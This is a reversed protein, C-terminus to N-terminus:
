EAWGLWPGLDAALERAMQYHQPAIPHADLETGPYYHVSHWRVQQNGEQEFHAVVAQLHSELVQKKHGDAEDAPNQMPSSILLVKAEPYVALIREVLAIYAPVYRDAEIVGPNFDNQGICITVVDPVYAAHDWRSDATDPLSREFLQALTVADENGQWDRILGKGGYSILNVQAHLLKALQWGYAAEANTSHFGERVYPGYYESFYGCTISDGLCMLKRAPLPAPELWQVSEAAVFEQWRVVGHWPENRRVLRVDYAERPDLRDAIPYDKPEAGTVEIMPLEVGNVYVNFFGQGQGGVMSARFAIRQVGTFRADVAVGPFGMLTDGEPTTQVRGLTRGHPQALLLVPALCLLGLLTSTLKKM